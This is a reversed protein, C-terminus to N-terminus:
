GRLEAGIERKWADVIQRSAAETEEEKLSRGEESFTVRVALSVKGAAVQSGRYVDFVRVAKALPKGAKLAVSVMKEATVSDDLLVAFDREMPPFESWSKYARPETAPKGIGQIAEWDLEAIWVPNRFKLARELKPHLMGAVGAARNGAVVEVAQGPHLLGAYAGAAGPASKYPQLRIAKGGFTEFVQELVAKLDFFDVAAQDAKLAGTGRPGIMVLSVKWKEVVTTQMESKSEIKETASFTPRIEFLRIAQPDASFHHRQNNLANKILGPILSPVMVEHEESLPNLVSVSSSMGFEKLWARSTFGLNVAEYFGADMLMDKMKELAALPSQSLNQPKPTSTLAPITAPIKDYGISRAVEETLDEPISLDLRYSPVAVKWQAGAETVECQCQKLAAKLEADSLKTGLYDNLFAKSVSLVKQRSARSALARSPLRADVIGVVKGGALETVLATLRSIAFDIGEPDIGREFRHSAETRKQHATACKRVTSAHFEACELFIKTTGDSVESNGGGMVGALGITKKGDFITLEGGKLTVETADLLPIKEGAQGQRVGIVAGEIRDADYAHVPHGLEFMLLNTADVVNNISRSGIAELRKVVWAPSPGIKVGEMSVGLFQPALDGAELKIQIPSKAFPKSFDLAAAQGAKPQVGLAGAVERALGYHGLCDGRNATLKLTLITDDRGLIKALPQGLATSPPLILIGESEKALGLESESCLMGNSTVGRIKGQAIKMGNPLEAGVQALCVKDGEKMNQAGCVIELPDGSGLTVTCLSLRDAQPHKEKKLIQVSVVKEFGKDLRDVAEVELGRATLLDALAQPGKGSKELSSLDVLEALWQYSVRM